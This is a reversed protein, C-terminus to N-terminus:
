GDRSVLRVAHRSNLPRVSGRAARAGPEATLSVWKEAGPALDVYSDDPIYGPVEIAVAQAFRETALRVRPQGGSTHLEASLGLDESIPLALGSPFFCSEAIVESTRLDCLRAVAVEYAAPGFRYAHTLDIFHDFLQSADVIM